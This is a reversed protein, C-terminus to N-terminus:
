AEYGASSWSRKLYLGVNASRKAGSANRGHASASKTQLTRLASSSNTAMSRTKDGGDAQRASASSRGSTNLDICFACLLASTAANIM